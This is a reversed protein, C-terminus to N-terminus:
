AVRHASATRAGRTAHIYLRERRAVGDPAPPLPLEYDVRRRHDALLLEPDFVSDFRFLSRVFNTQGRALLGGTLHAVNWLNRWGLHKRNLVQQTAVLERYFEDLSLRTPLVCHQIDFLRYDRTELRRAETV